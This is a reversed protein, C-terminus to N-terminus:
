ASYCLNWYIRDGITVEDTTVGDRVLTVRDKNRRTHYEGANFKETLNKKKKLRKPRQRSKNPTEPLNFQKLNRIM